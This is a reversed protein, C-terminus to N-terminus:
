FRRGAAISRKRGDAPTRGMRGSGQSLAQEPRLGLSHGDSKVTSDLLARVEERSWVVPLKRHVKPKAVEHDFWTQKLTRTYLFKLAAMRVQLTQWALKRENLL